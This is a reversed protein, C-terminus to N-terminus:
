QLIFRYSYRIKVSVPQGSVKAPEFEFNKIAALAAENLGYGPGEVLVAQRVKGKEDILLDMMVLGEVNNKKAEVPYPARVESILRPMESVLYEATPIPLSMAESEKIIEADRQKALTTGFKIGASDTNSATLTDRTIGFVKKSPKIEALETETKPSTLNVQPPTEEQPFPIEVEQIEIKFTQKFNSGPTFWVVLLIFGALVLHIALSQLFSDRHVKDM